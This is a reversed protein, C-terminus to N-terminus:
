CRDQHLRREQVWIRRSTGKAGNMEVCPSSDSDELDNANEITSRGGDMTPIRLRATGTENRCLLQRLTWPFHALRRWRGLCPQWAPDQDIRFVRTAVSCLTASYAGDAAGIDISIKNRACLFPVLKQERERDSMRGVKLKWYVTPLLQRLIGAGLKKVLSRNATDNIFNSTAKTM